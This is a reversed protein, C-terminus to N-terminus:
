FNDKYFLIRKENLIKSTFQSSKNFNYVACKKLHDLSLTSLIKKLDRVKKRKFIMSNELLEPIGGVNSGIAPIGVSMAEILARPLGEQLSPQIYLDMKKIEEFVKDHSLSGMFIINEQINLKKAIAKLRTNDGNGILYYKHNIGCKKMDAIAKFVYEHGKYKMGVNAVTCLKLKKINTENIKNIRSKLDDDTQKNLVVDSCACQRGKTPYRRQLFEDTVYLVNTAEKVCIKTSLYMIPAIIKGISNTHNTYGDWPCAVMEILYDKKEKQCINSAIIGLVSPMRIIVKDVSDIVKKLEKKISNYKFISDPINNYDKIPIVKVNDGNVIKYGSINGKVNEKSKVRTSVIMSDFISLYRSKFFDYNLTMGYFNKNDDEALVTDFVFLVKMKEGM